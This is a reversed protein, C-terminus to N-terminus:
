LSLAASMRSVPVSSPSSHLVASPSIPLVQPPSPLTLPPPTTSPRSVPGATQILSISPSLPTPAASRIASLPPVQFHLTSPSLPPPSVRSLPAAAYKPSTPLNQFLSTPLPPSKTLRPVAPAPLTQVTVSIVLALSPFASILGTM